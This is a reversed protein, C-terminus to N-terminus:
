CCAEVACKRRGEESIRELTGAWSHVWKKWGGGLVEMTRGAIKRVVSSKALLEERKAARGMAVGVHSVTMEAM